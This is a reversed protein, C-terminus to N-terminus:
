CSDANHREERIAKYAQEARAQAEEISDCRQWLFSMMWDSTLIYAVPHFLNEGRADVAVQLGPTDEKFFHDIYREYWGPYKPSLKAVFWGQAQYARNAEAFEDDPM